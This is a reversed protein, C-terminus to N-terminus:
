TGTNGESSVVIEGSMLRPLMIDRAERLKKNQLQLNLRLEFSPRLSEVFQNLITRSPSIMPYSKIIEQNVNKQAAGQALGILRQKNELLFLFAYIYHLGQHRPIIACCAQNTASPLALIGLQGITAGYMAFLVTGEPFVRAASDRIAQETIREQTEILFENKLEQTKVWLTNGEFYEPRKRSPTGGSGTDYFDAIIGSVWGEPVGKVIRTHEHGPFRLRVFWEKYLLKTSEELLNMRRVNNGILSDYAFLTEGIKEQEALSPHNIRYNKVMELNLNNQAAGRSMGHLVDYDKLLAYYVFLYDAKQPSIIFNGCAQNTTLPIKNIAVRGSSNGYLAVIVSNEPIWKASSNRLGDETIKIKTDEIFNFNVEQTRLWPIEGGYFSQNKTPPTGGSTARLCLDGVSSKLWKM